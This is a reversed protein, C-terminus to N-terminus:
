FNNEESLFQEELISSLRTEPTVGLKELRSIYCNDVEEIWRCILEIAICCINVAENTTTITLRLKFFKLAFDQSFPSDSQEKNKQILYKLIPILSQLEIALSFVMELSNHAAIPLKSSSNYMNELSFWFFTQPSKAFPIYPGEHGKAHNKMLELFEKRDEITVILRQILQDLNGYNKAEKDESLYSGINYRNLPIPRKQSRTAARSLMLTLAEIVKETYEIVQSHTIFFTELYSIDLVQCLAMRTVYNSPRTPPNKQYWKRVASNGSLKPKSKLRLDQPISILTLKKNITIKRAAENVQEAFENQSIGHGNIYDRIFRPLENPCEVISKKTKTM